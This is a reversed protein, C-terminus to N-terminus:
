LWRNLFRSYCCEMAMGQDRKIEGGHIERGDSVYNDTCYTYNNYEERLAGKLKLSRILPGDFTM